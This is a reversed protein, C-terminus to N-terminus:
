LSARTQTESILGRHDEKDLAKGLQLDQTLLQVLRGFGGDPELCLFSQDLEGVAGVTEALTLQQQLSAAHTPGTQGQRDGTQGQGDGTRGRDTGQRDRDTM